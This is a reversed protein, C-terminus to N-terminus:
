RRSANVVLSFRIPREAGPAGAPLQLDIRYAGADLWGRPIRVSVERVGGRAPLAAPVAVRERLERRGRASTVRVEVEQGAPTGAPIPIWLELDRDVPLDIEVPRQAELRLAGASEDFRLEAPRALDAAPLL